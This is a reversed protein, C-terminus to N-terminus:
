EDDPLSLTEMSEEDTWEWDFTDHRSEQLVFPGVALTQLTITVLRVIYATLVLYPALAVTFAVSVFLVVPSVGLVTAEPFQQANVALVVYSTFVIVPLAIYLLRGSLRALERKYYLSKFHERGVAFFELLEILDDVVAREDEDTVETTLQRAAYLQEAYDYQLGTLLARFTGLDNRELSSRVGGLDAAIDDVLAGAHSQFADDDSDTALADLRQTQEGIASFVTVLYEAPRAPTVDRRAIREIDKRYAMAADIRDQQSEIDTIEQSLIISNISVVITVLLIEGRLLALFLNQAAGTESLLQHMDVPRVVSLAVLTCFVTVLLLLTVALRNGTLVVWQWGQGLVSQTTADGASRFAAGDVSEESM